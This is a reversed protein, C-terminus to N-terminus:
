HALLLAFFRPEQNPFVGVSPKPLNLGAVYRAFPVDGGIWGLAVIGGLGNIPVDGSLAACHLEGVHQDCVVRRVLAIAATGPATGVILAQRPHVSVAPAAFTRGVWDASYM